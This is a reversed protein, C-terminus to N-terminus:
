RRCPLVPPSTLWRVRGSQPVVEGVRAALNTPCIFKQKGGQRFQQPLSVLLVRGSSELDALAERLDARKMELKRISDDLTKRTHFRKESVGAILYELFRDAAQAAKQDLTTAVEIFHEFRFGTRKLWSIPQNPPAYGLKPQALITISTDPEPTCGVPPKHKQDGPQWVQVVATMRSGDAMATGGRGADQDLQKDRANAQGTHHVFRVCCNLGKAIRRGAFILGQENTNVREESVGVSVLLDVYEVDPRDHKYAEVTQGALATPNINGDELFALRRVQGSVDWSAIRSDCLAMEEESLNMARYIEDLRALLRERQDEANVILTKRPRPVPLGWIPRGLALSLVRVPGHHDQWHRGPRDAPRCRCLPIVLRHLAAGTVGPCTGRPIRM